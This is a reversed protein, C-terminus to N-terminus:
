NLPRLNAEGWYGKLSKIRGQDDLSIVAIIDIQVTAGEYASTAQMPAAAEGSVTVRVPGTLRVEPKASIAGVYFDRIARISNYAPTGVPDELVADEAFLSCVADLNGESLRAVYSEIIQQVEEPSIM